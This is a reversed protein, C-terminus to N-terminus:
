KEEFTIEFKPFELYKALKKNNYFVLDNESFEIGKLMKMIYIPENPRTRMELFLRVEM